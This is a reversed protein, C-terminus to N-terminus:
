LKSHHRLQKTRQFKQIQQLAVTRKHVADPGDAIRLSRLACLFKALVHDDDSVGAGGFLQIARDVVQYTLTPVAYKILAVQDRIHRAGGHTDMAAACDLTLLRSAELDAVADAIM